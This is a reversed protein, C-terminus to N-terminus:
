EWRESMGTLREIRLRFVVAEDQGRTMRSEVPTLHPLQRFMAALLQEREAPNSIEEFTGFAIVSQWNYADKVEEIQLCIQPNKRMALIKRGPLSHIYVDEGQYLYNTPLVYPEGNVNCGLHGYRNAQLLRRADETGLPQIM